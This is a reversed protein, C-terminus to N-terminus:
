DGESENTDCITVDDTFFITEVTVGYFKALRVKIADKPTREGIEYMGIASVSVGIADAVEQQTKNGRLAILKEAFNTM